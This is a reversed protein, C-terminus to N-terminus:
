LYPLAITCCWTHRTKSITKQLIKYSKQANPKVITGSNFTAHIDLGAFCIPMLSSSSLLSISARMHQTGNQFM